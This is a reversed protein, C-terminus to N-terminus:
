HVNRYSSHCKALTKIICYTIQRGGVNHRREALEIETGRKVPFLFNTGTAHIRCRLQLHLLTSIPEHVTAGRIMQNRLVQRNFCSFYISLNYQHAHAVRIHKTLRTIAKLASVNQQILVIIFFQRTQSSNRDNKNDMISRPHIM